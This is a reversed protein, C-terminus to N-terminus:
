MIRNFQFGNSTHRYYKRWPTIIPVHDIFATVIADTIEREVRENVHQYVFESFHYGEFIKPGGGPATFGQDVFIAYPATPAGMGIELRVEVGPNFSISHVMSRTIFNFHRQKRRSLYYDKGAQIAQEAIANLRTEVRQKIAKTMGALSISKTNANEINVGAM